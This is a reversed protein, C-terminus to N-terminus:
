SAAIRDLVALVTETPTNDNWHILRHHGVASELAAYYGGVASPDDVEAFTEALVLCCRDFNGPGGQYHGYKRIDAAVGAAIEAPTM